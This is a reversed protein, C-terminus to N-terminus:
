LKNGCHPCEDYIGLIYTNGCCPCKGVAMEGKVTPCKKANKMEDFHLLTHLDEKQSPILIIFFILFWFIDTNFKYNMSHKYVYDFADIFAEFIKNNGYKELNNYLIGNFKSTLSDTLIGDTNNGQMGEFYWDNNEDTSYVILWHKEDEFNWLYLNYAYKELNVNQSMWESNEMTVLSITIGTKDQIDKFKSILEKEQYDSFVNIGDEILIDTNYNMSLKKAPLLSGIICYLLFLSALFTLIFSSFLEKRDNETPINKSYFYQPIYNNYYVYRNYGEKYTRCFKRSSGGGHGGHHGGGHHGGGSSHPM